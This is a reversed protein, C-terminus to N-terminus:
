AQGEIGRRLAEPLGVLARKVRLRMLPELLRLLGHQQMWLSGSVRTGGNSAEFRFESGRGTGRAKERSALRVPREFAVIKSEKRGWTM